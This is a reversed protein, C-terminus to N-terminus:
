WVIEISYPLFSFIKKFWNIYNVLWSFIWFFTRKTIKGRVNRFCIMIQIASAIFNFLLVACILTIIVIFKKCPLFSVCFTARSNRPYNIIEICFSQNTKLIIKIWFSIKRKNWIIIKFSCSWCIVDKMWFLFFTEQMRHKLQQKEDLM